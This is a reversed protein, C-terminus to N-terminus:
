AGGRLRLRLFRALRAPDLPRAGRWVVTFRGSTKDHVITDARLPLDEDVPCDCADLRTLTARPFMTPLHLRVEDRDTVTQTAVVIAAGPAPPEFWPGAAPLGGNHFADDFEDPLLKTAPDFGELDGARELRPGDTRAIWGFTIPETRDGDADDFQESITRGGLTVEEDWEVDGATGTPPAPPGLVVLDAFPKTPALDHEHRLNGHPKDAGGEVLSVLDYRVTMGDGGGHLILDAEADTVTASWTGTLTVLEFGDTMAEVNTASISLGTGSAAVVEVQPVTAHNRAYRLTFRRGGLPADFRLRQRVTGSGRIELVHPFDDGGEEVAIDADGSWGVAVGEEVEAFDGNAVQDLPEDTVRIAEQEALPAASPDAAAFSGKCIVTLVTEPGGAAARPGILWLSPFVPHPQFDM